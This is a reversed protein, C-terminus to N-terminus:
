AHAYSNGDEQEDANQQRPFQAVDVGCTDWGSLLGL